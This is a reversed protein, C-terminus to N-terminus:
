RFVGLQRVLAFLGLLAVLVQAGAPWAAPTGLLRYGMFLILIAIGMGAGLAAMGRRWALVLTMGGAVLGVALVGGQMALGTDVSGGGPEFAARIAQEIADRLAMTRAGPPVPDPVPITTPDPTFAVRGWGTWESYCFDGPAAACLTADEQRARVRVELRRYATYFFSNAPAATPQAITTM